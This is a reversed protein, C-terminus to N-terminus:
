KPILEPQNLICACVSETHHYFLLLGATGKPEETVEASGREVILALPANRLQFAGREHPSDLTVSLHEVADGKFNLCIM